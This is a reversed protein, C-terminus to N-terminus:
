RADVLLRLATQLQVDPPLQGKPGALPLELPGSLVDPRLGTGAWSSGDPARLLFDAVQLVVEDNLERWAPIAVQGGTETGVVRVRAQASQRLAAVFAEAAAQTGRNVLVVVRGAYPEAAPVVVQEAPQGWRQKSGFRAGPELFLAACAVAEDLLGGENSRLDIVVAKEDRLRDVAAALARGVGKGFYAIRVVPVGDQETVQVSGQHWTGRPVAVRRLAGARDVDLRVRDGTTRALLEHVQAASLGTLPRDDVGVILDGRAIGAAEAPGGPVVDTVVLGQGPVVVFELAIGRRMGAFWAQRERAEPPRLAAHIPVGTQRDLEAMMGNIAGWELVAPDPLTPYQRELLAAAEEVAAGLEGARARPSLPALILVLAIIPVM